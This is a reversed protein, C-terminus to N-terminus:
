YAGHGPVMSRCKASWHSQRLKVDVKVDFHTERNSRHRRTDFTIFHISKAYWKLVCKTM